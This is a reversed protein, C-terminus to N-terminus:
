GRGRSVSAGAAELELRVQLDLGTKRNVDKIPLLSPKM